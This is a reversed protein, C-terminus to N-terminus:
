SEFFESRPICFSLPCLMMKEISKEIICDSWLDGEDDSSVISVWGWYFYYIIMNKRCM